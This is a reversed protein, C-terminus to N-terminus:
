KILIKIADTTGRIIYTGSSFQNLEQKTCNKKILVGQTNYIDVTSAGDAFIEEIGTLVDLKCEATLNSGDTTSVTITCLGPKLVSVLGTNDVTAISNDSSAWELTKDTTNEPLIEATIQFMEGEVGNWSKPDITLSEALTPVVRVMCTASVGSGDTATATVIAEGLGVATIMGEADVIAVEEDSSAWELTKNIADEPLVTATLQQSDGKTGYWVEPYISISTIYSNNVKVKVTECLTKYNDSVKVTVNASGANKAILRMSTPDIVSIVEDNDSEIEVNFYKMEPTTNAELVFDEGCSIEYEHKTLILSQLWDLNEAEISKLLGSSSKFNINTKGQQFQEALGANIPVRICNEQPFSFYDAWLIDPNDTFAIIYDAADEPEFQIQADCGSGRIVKGNTPEFSVTMNTAQKNGEVIRAVESWVYPTSKYNDKAGIPVSLVFHDSSFPLFNDNVAIPESCNMIIKRLLPDLNLVSNSLM